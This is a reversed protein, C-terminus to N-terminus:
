PLIAAKTQAYVEQITGTADVCHVKGFQKYYDVVPQSHKFFNDVRNAMTEPNDDARGSTKARSTCRELMIERPVDYYLIAHAEMVNKEFYTAQDIARPFGDIL